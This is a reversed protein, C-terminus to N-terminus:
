LKVRGLNRHDWNLAGSVEFGRSQPDIIILNEYIRKIESDTFGLETKMYKVINGYTDHFMEITALMAEYRSSILNNFGDEEITWNKRGQSILLEVDSNDGLKERLKRTTEVFKERLQPHDPRLGITTLEYEKAITNKDVGLLLLILMGLIGTRDKGATCHFVFPKNEKLIYEFITRYAGIGFELMNEYVHVYTNWSTMLNTYRIAIAHPSYDDKSFVPAHIRKIGYQELNQPVGDQEVEGDSRLDFVAKVGLEQLTKLGAPKIGSINACRFATHPKVYYQLASKEPFSSSSNLPFTPNHIKWGGIDRFNSVGEVNKWRSLRGIELSTHLFRQLENEPSLFNAIIDIVKFNYNVVQKKNLPLNEPNQEINHDDHEIPEVGYFNHDAKPILELRHSFYGRNLANAYLSSDNIPIIEDELGYISLVSWETTLGHLKSLDPKSLSVLESKPILIESMQGHRLCMMPVEKFFEDHLPYRDAVTPLSFRGSCNILNPVIIANPDGLKLYEDQLMAWLFMAVSGRSHGIISLLTFSMGLPNLKGDRLFEACAQIDDVDQALVRGKQADENEASSGCGRFDIRLSYIGLDAALKHALRKQYCYDRHGGQGHLILAAKHTAPAYGDEYPNEAEASHPIAITGSIGKGITVQIEKPVPIPDYSM